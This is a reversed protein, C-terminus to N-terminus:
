LDLCFEQKNKKNNYKNKFLPILQVTCYKNWILYKIIM